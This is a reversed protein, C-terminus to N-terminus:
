EKSAEEKVAAELAAKNQAVIEELAPIISELHAIKKKKLAIAEEISKVDAAEDILAQLEENEKELEAILTASDEDTNSNCLDVLARYYNNAVSYANYAVRYAIYVETSKKLAGNYDALVKAYEDINAQTTLYAYDAKLQELAVKADNYNKTVNELGPKYDREAELARQYEDKKAAKDTEAAKDWADKAAKTAEVLENYRKTYDDVLGKWYALNGEEDTIYLAFADKNIKMPSYVQYSYEQTANNFTYYLWEQTVNESKVLNVFNGDIVISKNIYEFATNRYESDEFAALIANYSYNRYVNYAATYAAYFSNKEVQAANKKVVLDAFSTNNLEKCYAIRDKNLAIQTEWEIKDEAFSEEATILDNNLGFLEYNADNLDKKADNLAWVSNQYDFILNKYRQIDAAHAMKLQEQLQNAYDELTKQNEILDIELQAKNKAIQHKLEQQAKELDAASKGLQAELRELAILQEQLRLAELEKTQDAQAKQLELRIKEKDVAVQAREKAVAAKQAEVEAAEKAAVDMAAKAAALKTAAEAEANKLNALSTLQKAQADRIAEVASSEGDEVCAGLSLAGLLVAVMMLKKKM